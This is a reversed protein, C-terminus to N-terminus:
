YTQRQEKISLQIFHDKYSGLSYDACFSTNITHVEMKDKVKEILDIEFENEPTLVITTEGNEIIVKAKM